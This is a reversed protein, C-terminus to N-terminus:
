GPREHLGSVLPADSDSRRTEAAGANEPFVLTDWTVPGDEEVTGRDTM